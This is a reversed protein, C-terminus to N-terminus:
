VYQTPPFTYSMDWVERGVRTGSRLLIKSLPTLSINVPVGLCLLEPIGGEGIHRVM